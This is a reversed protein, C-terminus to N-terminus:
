SNSKQRLGYFASGEEPWGLYTPHHLKMAGVTNAHATELCGCGLYMPSIIRSQIYSDMDLDDLMQIFVGEALIRAQEDTIDARSQNFHKFEEIDLEIYVQVIRPAKEETM